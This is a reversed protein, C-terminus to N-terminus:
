GPAPAAATHPASVSPGPEPQEIHASEVIADFFFNCLNELLNLIAM